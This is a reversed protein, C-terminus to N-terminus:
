ELCMILLRDSAKSNINFIKEARYISKFYPPMKELIIATFGFKMYFSKLRARCMLYIPRNKELTLLTEIIGRALGYGRSNEHVAISAMERSGDGHAKIQGCGVVSGEQTVAVIFRRWDLGTPNIQVKHILLRIAPFDERTAKRIPIEAM